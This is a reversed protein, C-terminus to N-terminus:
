IILYRAPSNRKINEINHVGHSFINSAPSVMMMGCPSISSKVTFKFNTVGTPM